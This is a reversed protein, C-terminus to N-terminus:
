FLFLCFQLYSGNNLWPLTHSLIAYYHLVTTCCLHGEEGSALFCSCMSLWWSKSMQKRTVICFHYDGHFKFWSAIHSIQWFLQGYWVARYNQDCSTVVKSSETPLIETIFQLRVGRRRPFTECLDWKDSSFINWAVYKRTYFYFLFYRLYFLYNRRNILWMCVTLSKYTMCKKKLEEATWRQLSFLSVSQKGRNSSIVEGYQM